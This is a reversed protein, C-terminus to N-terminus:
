RNFLKSGKVETNKAGSSISSSIIISIM